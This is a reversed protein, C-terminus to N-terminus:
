VAYSLPVSDENLQYRLYKEFSQWWTIFQKTDKLEFLKISDNPKLV